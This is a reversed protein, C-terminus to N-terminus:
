RVSVNPALGPRVVRVLEGTREALERRYRGATFREVADARGAAALRGALEPDDLVRAIAAALAAPDGPPVLLGTRGDDVIEALGQVDSAV